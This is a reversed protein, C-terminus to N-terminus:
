ENLYITEKSWKENFHNYLILNAVEQRNQSTKKYNKILAILILMWALLVIYQSPSLINSSLCITLKSNYLITNIVMTGLKIRVIESPLYLIWILFGITSGIITAGLAHTYDVLSSDFEKSEALEKYIAKKSNWYYAFIVWVERKSLNPHNNIDLEKGKYKVKILREDILRHFIKTHDIAIKGELPGWYLYFYISASLYGIATAAAIFATASLLNGTSDYFKELFALTSNFDSVLFAVLFQIIAVLGPITLRLFQRVDNM